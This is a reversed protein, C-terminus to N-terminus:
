MEKIIVPSTYFATMTSKRAAEFEDDTLLERVEQYHRNEPEFVKAMGGWGTYKSLIEQEEPTADRDEAELQKLTRIAALNDEFKVATKRQGLSLDTIQYNKSEQQTDLKNPEQSSPNLEFVQEILVTYGAEKLKASYENKIHEPFGVM